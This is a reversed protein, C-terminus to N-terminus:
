LSWSYKPLWDTVPVYYKSRQKIKKAYAMTISARKQPLRADGGEESESLITSANNLKVVRNQAEAEAVQDLSATFNRRPTRGEHNSSERLLPTSENATMNLSTGSMTTKGFLMDSLNRVIRSNTSTNPNHSTSPLTDSNSTSTTFTLHDDRILSPSAMRSICNFIILRSFLYSPM